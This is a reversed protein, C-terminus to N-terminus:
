SHASGGFLRTSGFHAQVLMQIAGTLNDKRRWHCLEHIVLLSIQPPSLHATIGAPLLLVPRFVGILGPGFLSSTLVVPIPAEISAPSADRVAARLQRWQFTWRALLLASGGAWILWLLSGLHVASSTVARADSAVSLVGPAPMALTWVVESWQSTAPLTPVADWHLSRGLADVLPFPILFKLSACVCFRLNARHNKLALTALWALLCARYFANIAV